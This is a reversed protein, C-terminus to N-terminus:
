LFINYLQTGTITQLNKNLQMTTHLHKYFDKSCDTVNYIQCLNKICYLIEVDEEKTYFNVGQKNLKINAYAM